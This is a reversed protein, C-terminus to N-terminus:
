DNIYNLDYEEKGRKPHPRFEWHLYNKFEQDRFFDLPVYKLIWKILMMM